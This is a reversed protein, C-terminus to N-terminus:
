RRGRGQQFRILLRKTFPQERAWDPTQGFLANFLGDIVTLDEGQDNKNVLEVPAHAWAEGLEENVQELEVKVQAIREDLGSLKQSLARRDMELAATRPPFTAREELLRHRSARLNAEAEEIQARLERDTTM